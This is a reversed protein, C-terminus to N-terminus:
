NLECVLDLFKPQNSSPQEYVEQPCNEPQEMVIEKEDMDEYPIDKALM